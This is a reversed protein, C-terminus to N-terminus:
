LSEDKPLNVMRSEFEPHWGIQQRNALIQYSGRTIFREQCSPRIPIHAESEAWKYVNQGAIAQDIDTPNPPMADKSQEFRIGWEEKLNEDYRDLDGDVLLAERVWRSRQESAKYFNKVARQVRSASVNILQLQRVFAWSSFPSIDPNALQIEPYIPLSDSKFQERLDNLKAEIEIAKISSIKSGDIASVIRQLWWGELYTLFQDLYKRECHGWLEESLCPQIDKSLPCNDLIYIRELLARRQEPTLSKFKLYAQKNSENSSTQSTILLLNEALEINRGEISLYRAASNDVSKETTMLCLITNQGFSDAFYLDCWIKISKWIDISADTLNAKRNIHHKVQIIETPKGGKEFVVDDLTEIEVAIDPDSKLRKLFELLALRCQYIYGCLSSAASYQSREQM